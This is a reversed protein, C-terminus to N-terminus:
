KLIMFHYPNLVLYEDDRGVTMEDDNWLDRLVQGQTCGKERLAYWTLHAVQDSFNYLCFIRNDKDFRIYGAIHINHPSIWEINNFDGFIQYSKRIIILKRIGSFISHEITNKKKRLENKQWDIMPRHMWRNDYNKGSDHLYSYDNTYAVEDGYYLMPIGGLLLSHAQMM